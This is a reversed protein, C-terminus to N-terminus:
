FERFVYKYTVVVGTSAGAYEFVLKAGGPIIIPTKLQLKYRSDTTNYEIVEFNSHGDNGIRQVSGHFRTQGPSITHFVNNLYNNSIPSDDVVLKVRTSMNNTSFELFDLILDNDTEFAIHNTVGSVDVGSAGDVRIRKGLPNYPGWNGRTDQKHMRTNLFKNVIQSLSFPGAM